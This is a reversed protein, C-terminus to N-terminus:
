GNLREEMRTIEQTIAHHVDDDAMAAVREADGLVRRWLAAVLRPRDKAFAMSAEATRVLGPRASLDLGLYAQLYISLTEM